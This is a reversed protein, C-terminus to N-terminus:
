YVKYFYVSGSRLTNGDELIDWNLFHYHEDDGKIGCGDGIRWFDGRWEDHYTPIDTTHVWHIIHICKKGPLFEISEYCENINYGYQEKEMTHVYKHGVIPAFHNPGMSIAIILFLILVFTGLFGGATGAITTVMKKKDQKIGLWNKLKSLMSKEGQANVSPTTVFSIIVEIFSLIALVIFVSFWGRFEGAIATAIWSTNAFVFSSIGFIFPNPHIFFRFFANNFVGPTIPTPEINTPTIETPKIETPKIETSKIETPEINTPKIETPEIKTPEIETPEINTPKIETTDYLNKVLQVGCKPCFKEGINLPSGCNYCFRPIRAM